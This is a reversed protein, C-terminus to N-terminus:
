NKIGLLISGEPLGFTLTKSKSFCITAPAPKWWYLSYDTGIREKIDSSNIHIDLFNGNNSYVGEEFIIEENILEKCLSSDQCYASYKGDYFNCAFINSISDRDYLSWGHEFSNIYL